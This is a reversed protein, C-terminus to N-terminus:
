IRHSFRTTFSSRSTICTQGQPCDTHYPCSGICDIEERYCWSICGSDNGCGTICKPLDDICYNECEKALNMDPCSADVLPSVNAVEIQINSLNKNIM